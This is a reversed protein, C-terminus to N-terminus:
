LLYMPWWPNSNKLYCDSNTLPYVYNKSFHKRYFGVGSALLTTEYNSINQGLYKTIGM